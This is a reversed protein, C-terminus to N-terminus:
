KKGTDPIRQQHNCAKRSRKQPHRPNISPLQRYFSGTFRRQLCIGESQLAARSKRKRKHGHYLKLDDQGM